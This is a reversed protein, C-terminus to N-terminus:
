RYKGGVPKGGYAAANEDKHGCGAMQCLLICFVM